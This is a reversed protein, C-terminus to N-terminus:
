AGAAARRRLRRDARPPQRQRPTTARTRGCTSCTTASTRPAATLTPWDCAEDIDFALSRRGLDDNYLREEAGGRVRARRLPYLRAGQAFAGSTATLALHDAAISDITVVEWSNV